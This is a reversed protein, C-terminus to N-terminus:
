LARKVIRLMSEAGVLDRQRVPVVSALHGQATCEDMLPALYAHGKANAGQLPYLRLEKRAIRLLETTSRLHFELDLPSSELMGGSAIDSYIFLLNASLAFDFSNDDFPLTPLRGSVYRGRPAAAFDQLFIEMSKRRESTSVYNTHLTQPNAQQKVTVAAADSDVVHRLKDATEAYMPDCAVVEIGAQAAEKAFAAPGGACDLVRQGKLGNLDLNFMDVYEGLGRGFFVVRAFEFKEEPRM